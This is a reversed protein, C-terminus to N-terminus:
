NRVVSQSYPIILGFRPGGNYPQLSIPWGLFNGGRGGSRKRPEVGWPRGEACQQGAPRRRAARPRGPRTCPWGLLSQLLLTRRGAGPSGGRRCQAPAVGCARPGHLRGRTPPAENCALVHVSTGREHGRCTYPLSASTPRATAANSASDDSRTNMVVLTRQPPPLSIVPPAAQQNVVQRTVLHPLRGVAAGSAHVRHLRPANAGGNM